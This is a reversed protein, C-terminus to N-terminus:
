LWAVIGGDTQRYLEAMVSVMCRDRAMELIWITDPLVSPAPEDSPMLGLRLTVWGRIYNISLVAISTCGRMLGYRYPDRRLKKM